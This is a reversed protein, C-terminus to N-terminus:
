ENDKGGNENSYRNTYYFYIDEFDIPSLSGETLSIKRLAKENTQDVKIYYHCVTGSIKLDMDLNLSQLKNELSEQRSKRIKIVHTKDLSTMLAKLDGELIIKGRDMLFTYDSYQAAQNLYHDSVIVIKDKSAERIINWIEDRSSTDLGSAPEDLIIMKQNSLVTMALLLRRKTGGSLKRTKQHYYEELNYQKLYDKLNVNKVDFVEAVLELEESVRCSKRLSNQQSLFGLAKKASLSDPPSDDILISGSSAKRIGILIELFTTKGSGNPGALLYVGPNKFDMTLCDLVVKDDYVKKLEKVKIGM